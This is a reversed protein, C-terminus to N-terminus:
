SLKVCVNKTDLFIKLCKQEDDNFQTKAKAANFVRKMEKKVEDASCSLNAIFELHSRQGRYAPVDKPMRLYQKIRKLDFDYLLTGHHLIFNKGRKQANGSVKKEEPILAVDSIPLFKSEIGLNQLAQVVRTLIVEYSKKLHAIEPDKEKSLVLSFNLCGPGQLVTGGGSSRRLVPIQDKVINDFNLDEKEKSIRGLVVFLRSSEWFRLVETGKGTEALHLLVEDYLINEEPSNFSIDKLLM